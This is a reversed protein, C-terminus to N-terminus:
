LDQAESDEVWAEIISHFRKLMVPPDHYHKCIEFPDLDIAEMMLIIRLDGNMKEDEWSQREIYLVKKPNIEDLFKILANPIVKFWGEDVLHFKVAEIVKGGTFRIKSVGM